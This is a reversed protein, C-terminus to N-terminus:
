VVKMGNDTHYITHQFIDMPATLETNYVGEMILFGVNLTDTPKEVAPFAFSVVDAQKQDKNSESCGVLCLILLVNAWFLKIM